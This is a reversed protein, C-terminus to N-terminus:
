GDRLIKYLDLCYLHTRNIVCYLGVFKEKKGYSFIIVILIFLKVVTAFLILLLAGAPVRVATALRCGDQVRKALCSKILIQFIQLYVCVSYSPTRWGPSSGPDCGTQLGRGLNINGLGSTPLARRNQKKVFDCKETLAKACALPFPNHCPQIM